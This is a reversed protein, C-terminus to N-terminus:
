DHRGVECSFGCPRQDQPLEHSGFRCWWGLGERRRCAPLQLEDRYGLWVQLHASRPHSSRLHRRREAHRGQGVRYLLGADAYKQALIDTAVQSWHKPVEIDDMQFIPKGDPNRLASARKTYEFQEFVAAHGNMGTGKKTFRRTIQM